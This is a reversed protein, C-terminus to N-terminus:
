CRNAGMFNDNEQIKQKKHIKENGFGGLSNNQALFTLPELFSFRMKQELFM